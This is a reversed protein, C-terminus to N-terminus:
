GKAGFTTKPRRGGGKKGLAAYALCVGPMRWGSPPPNTFLALSKTKFSYTIYTKNTRSDLHEYKQFTNSCYVFFMLYLAMFYEEYKPSQSFIFRANKARPAMELYGDGLLSGFIVERIYKDDPKNLDIRSNRNTESDQKM